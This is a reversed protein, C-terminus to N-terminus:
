RAMELSPTVHSSRGVSACLEVVRRCTAADMMGIHCDAAEIGLQDALWAYGAGRAAKKSCGDREIKAKWLRDFAAHAASKAQRLEATALIGLPRTTGDHCGVWASCPVCRYFQKAALDPRHPYMTAGTVLEAAKGCYTCPVIGDGM